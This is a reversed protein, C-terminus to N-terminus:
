MDSFTLWHWHEKDRNHWMCTHVNYEHYMILLDLLPLPSVNASCSGETRTSLPLMEEQGSHLTGQKFLLGLERTAQNERCSHIKYRM